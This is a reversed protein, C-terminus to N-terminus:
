ADPWSGILRRGAPTTFHLPKINNDQLEVRVIGKMTDSPGLDEKLVSSYETLLNEKMDVLDSSEKVQNVSHEQSTECRSNEDDEEEEEVHSPPPYPFTKPM